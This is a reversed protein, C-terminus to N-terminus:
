GVEVNDGDKFDRRGLDHPPLRVETFKLRREPQWSFISLLTENFINLLINIANSRFLLYVSSKLSFHCSEVM